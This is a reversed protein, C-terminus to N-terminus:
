VKEFYDRLSKLKTDSVGRICYYFKCKPETGSPRIAAWSGDEFIFKLVDSKPLDIQSIIGSETRQSNLYDEFTKVKQGAISDPVKTRFNKMIDQIKEAGEIGKLTLSTQYDKFFGYKKYINELVDALTEGKAKYFAAAECIIVAAQMADKDRVFDGILYGYSEEYGFVFNKDKAKEHALIRSGIHKFGTLTKEVEVGYNKAIVEGIDSTVVTTIMLPNKPMLNLRTKESLIYELMLAGTQNGTILVYGGNHKVAIGIRDADPDTTIVLDANVAKAKILSLEYAEPVEPNPSKTGRFESDPNAQEEVVFLNYGLDTLITRIPINSTGHQPSFVVKLQSKDIDKNIQISKVKEYYKKDVESGIINIKDGAETVSLCKVALENEVKGINKVVIDAHESVLQCGTEDYLKYGNYEPPNHSATIVIGGFCNLYRVSFSLQPTSRLSEYVYSQIGNAALVGAANEAFERSKRRNDYAIVVGRKCAEAGNEIIFDAFGKTVKRVTYINMRNTGAGIIGRLGGTGLELDKYFADEKEKDTMNIIQEKLQADIDSNLWIKAKNIYNFM